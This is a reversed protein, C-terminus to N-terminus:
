VAAPMLRPLFKLNYLLLFTSSINPKTTINKLWSSTQEASSSMASYFDRTAKPNGLQQQQYYIRLDESKIATTSPPPPPPDLHTM